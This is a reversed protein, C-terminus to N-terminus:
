KSKKTRKELIMKALEQMNSALTDIYEDNLKDPEMMKIGKRAYKLATSRDEVVKRLTESRLRQFFTKYPDLAIIEQLNAM